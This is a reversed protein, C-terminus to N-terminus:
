KSVKPFMFYVDGQVNHLNPVNPDQIVEVPQAAQVAATIVPLVFRQLTPVPLVKVPPRAPTIARRRLYKPKQTGQLADSM